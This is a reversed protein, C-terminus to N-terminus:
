QISTMMTCAAEHTLVFTLYEKLLYVASDNESAKEEYTLDQLVAMFIFRTDLFLIRRSGATTPMFKDRIFMVGDFEFAAPIGFGLAAESPNSIQRQLDLLLGKVYNHTTADMVALNIEGNNNYSTAFEARFQALTPVGGGLSTTNSSILQILGDPEEPNTSADGNIIMEEEAEMITISKVSLDLQSADIFGRMGAVAPGSVRGKAYLFKVGVSVRDYTDEQDAIAQLELAWVAGGKATLPIYDYTLGRIARRPFINRLPTERITRDVITPDVFVPILATGATGAGGTQTNISGGPAVKSIAEAKAQFALAIREVGKNKNLPNYYEVSQGGFNDSQMTIAGAFGDEFAKDTDIDLPLDKFKLM